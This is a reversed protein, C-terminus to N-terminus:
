MAPSSGSNAMPGASDRLYESEPGSRYGGFSEETEENRRGRSKNVLM